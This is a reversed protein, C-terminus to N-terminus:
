VETAGQDEQLSLLTAYTASVLVLSGRLTTSGVTSLRICFIQPLLCLWPVRWLVHRCEVFVTFPHLCADYAQESDRRYERVDMPFMKQYLKFVDYSM